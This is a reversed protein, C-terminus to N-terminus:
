IYEYYRIKNQQIQWIKRKITITVAMTTFPMEVAQNNTKSNFITFYYTKM